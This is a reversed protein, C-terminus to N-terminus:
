RLIAGRVGIITRREYEAGALGITRGLVAPDAGFARVWLGHSLVVVDAQGPLAEEDRFTRGLGAAIGLLRFHHPSVLTGTLELPEGEGTLTLSWNSVGSVQELAPLAAAEHALAKNFNVEPWIAVLRDPEEYPLDRLLVANFVSFTATSAGIGLALTVIAIASLAKSSWLGRVAYRLDQLATGMAGGGTLDLRSLRELTGNALVDWLASMWIWARGGVDDTTSLRYEMLEEADPGWQERFDKPLLRLLWRYLRLSRRTNMDM